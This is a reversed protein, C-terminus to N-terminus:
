SHLYLKFVEDPLESHVLHVLKEYVAEWDDGLVDFWISNITMNDDKEAVQVLSILISVLSYCEIEKRGKLNFLNLNEIIQLLNKKIQKVYEEDRNPYLILDDTDIHKLILAMLGAAFKSLAWEEWEAQQELTPLYRYGNEVTESVTYVPLHRGEIEM